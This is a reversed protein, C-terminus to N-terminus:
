PAPKQFAERLAAELAEVRIPKTLHAVFGASRCRAIDEEMGFGTLAIGRLGFKDRLKAMLATGDGDPLGLDSIVLDFFQSKTQALAEQVSGAPVVTYKRRRLLQELTQRTSDHDEVLLIRAGHPAPALRQSHAAEGNAPPKHNTTTQLPPKV